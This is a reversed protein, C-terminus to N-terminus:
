GYRANRRQHLDIMRRSSAPTLMMAATRRTDAGDDRACECVQNGPQSRQSMRPSAKDYFTAKMTLKDFWSPAARIAAHAAEHNSLSVM